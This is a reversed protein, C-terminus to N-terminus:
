RKLTARANIVRAITFLVLVLSVLVLAGTWAEALQAPKTAGRLKWIFLPLDSQPGRLPNVNTLNSGFATFLMPATEGVARAVGLIAGTVLGSRATPLVVALTTRWEPAGLAASAERLTGPVIKLVEEATRTITPVMLIVLAMSGAMGSYGKSLPPLIWFTFVFFGAVVSPVGSMAETIFRVLKTVRGGVENLYVAALVAVPVAVATAIGVQMLTGIISHLAGGKSPPDLPGLGEQSKTFFTSLGKVLTPGGQIATYALIFVLPVFVAVAASAFAVTVTRDVAVEPGRSDKVVLYFAGLFTAYWCVLFGIGGDLPTLRFVLWVLIFTSVASGVLFLADTRNLGPMEVRPGDESVIPATV